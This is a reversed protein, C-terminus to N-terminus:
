MSEWMKEIHQFSYYTIINLLSSIRNKIINYVDDYKIYPIIYNVLFYIMCKIINWTFHSLHIDHTYDTYRPWYCGNSNRCYFKQVYFFWIFFLSVLRFDRLIVLFSPPINLFADCVNVCVCLPDTHVTFVNMFQNNKQTSNM